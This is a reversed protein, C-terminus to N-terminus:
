LAFICGVCLFAGRIPYVVALPYDLYPASADYMKKLLQRWFLLNAEWPSYTLCCTVAAGLIHGGGSIIVATKIFTTMGLLCLAALIGMLLYYLVGKEELINM